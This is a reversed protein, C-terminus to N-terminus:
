AIREELQKIKAALVAIFEEYRLFYIDNGDEDVDKVFGGFDLSSLGAQTMAEEVEQSIFGVHYRGSTGDNLKYRRPTLWDFLTLYTEPLTEISNKMNADSTSVASNTSYIQGWLNSSNGLYPNGKGFYQDKDWYYFVGSVAIGATGNAIYVQNTTGNYTLKAGNSTAVVEGSGKQMHIGASGDNASSTYGIYGGVSGSKGTYVVMSGYLKIYESLLLGTTINSGNITTSGKTSLDSFTVMGTIQIKQSSIAVGNQLLSITSSSAGNSVSLQMGNVTATLSSLGGEATSVRASLGETTQTLSSYDGEVDGVRTLLAEATQSLSSVSGEANSIRTNFSEVTQTVTSLGGEVSDIRSSLTTATQTLSSVDGSVSEVRTSLGNVTQTLTSVNGEADSIRTGLANATQQLTSVNGEADTVRTSIASVTQSLNSLNGEADSIKSTLSNATQTLQSIDGEATQIKSTLTQSTQQLTSINGNIDQIQSLVNKSTANLTSIDGEASEIRAYWGTATTNILNINGEADELRATLKAAEIDLNAINGETDELRVMIPERIWRGISDLETDNFNDAGLNGLTYRLSELLMYLYNTVQNLNEETTQEEDIKPFSTDLNQLASPM